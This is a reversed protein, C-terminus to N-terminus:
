RSLPHRERLWPEQNEWLQRVYDILHASKDESMTQVVTEERLWQSTWTAFGMAAWSTMM